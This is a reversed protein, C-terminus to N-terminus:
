CCHIRLRLHHPQYHVTFMWSGDDVNAICKPNDSLLLLDNM